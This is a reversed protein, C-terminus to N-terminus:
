QERLATAPDVRGARLAPVAAALLGVAALALTAAALSAPDAPAVGYLYGSLLRALAWALGIGVVVGAGILAGGRGLVRAVARWPRLGLAIRIGTERRRGAVFHAVVGYVGVGGLVLALGALISLLRMVQRAPGQAEAFVRDMTTVARVGVAPAARAIATHAADLVAPAADGRELRLVLTRYPFAFPLQDQLVYRAPRAGETLEGEAVNEVVGVITAFGRGLGFNIRRGIPDRDPFFRDVLAQNVVVVPEGDPRDAAEFGRGRLVDIGMVDFYGRSVMRYYTTVGTGEPEEELALGENWSSGRLPIRQTAAASAVGPVAELAREVEGLAAVMAAGTEGEPMAVDVVAIGRTDVGPDISRLEGVSRALLAAGATVAVALAVEAVVLGGELRGGRGGVGGGGVSGTRGRVLAGRLDGRWLSVIPILSVVLSAAVGIGLAAGFVTWDPALGGGMAALPLAEGLSRFGLGAVLAGAGGALLGVLLAEAVVQQTLRGRGAGHATRVALEGTRGGLQGLMLAAVNASAMVLIVAIAALAALLAPRASAVLHSRIPTLVPDRTADWSQTYEFTEGLSSTIRALPGSMTALTRGPALRGVIAYNGANSTPRLPTSLWARAEPSPFWFGAPMVGVVTRDRGALRIRTGVVDPDGGLERWFGHSLVVKPEAGPEDDGPRFGPGLRPSVGLVEFLGASTSIGPVIRTSGDDGRLTAEVATYAALSEFGPADGRIHRFEAESWWFPAWWLVVREESEYPLPDVLQDRVIGYVAAGGGVGLALTAVALATYGPRRKLRRGAFRVDRIWGELWPGGGTLRESPSEWGSAGRAASRGGLPVVSGLAQRWLWARARLRGRAAVREGYERELDERVEARAAHPLQSRLLAWAVRPLGRKQEGAM